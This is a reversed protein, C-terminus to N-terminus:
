SCQSDDVICEYMIHMGTQLLGIVELRNKMGPGFTFIQLTGNKDMTVLAAQNPMNNLGEHWDNALAHLFAVPDQKLSPPFLPAIKM